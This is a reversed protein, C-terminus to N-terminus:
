ALPDQHLTDYADILSDLVMRALFPYEEELIIRDCSECTIQHITRVLAHTDCSPCPTPLKQVFRTKGLASRITHHTDNVAQATPGANPYTCLTEFHNTLYRYANRVLVPEPAVYLAPGTNTTTRLQDEIDNLLGAIDRCTDSAWEAPHGFSTPAGHRITEGKAPPPMSAKLTVYDETLWRLLKHYRNRSPHCMRQTTLEPNGYGDDCGPYICPAVPYENM